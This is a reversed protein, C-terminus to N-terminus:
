AYYHAIALSAVDTEAKKWEKLKEGAYARVLPHLQLREQDSQVPLLRNVSADLLNRTVLQDLAHQFDGLQLAQALALAARRAFAPTAFLALAVFLTQEDASLQAYSQDFIRETGRPTHEQLEDAVQALVRHAAAAGIIKIFLPHRGIAALIREAAAREGSHSDLDSVARRGLAIAFLEEAEEPSLEG